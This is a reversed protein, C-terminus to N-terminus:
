DCSLQEVNFTADGGLYGLFCKSQPFDRLDNVVVVVAGGYLGFFHARRDLSEHKAEDELYNNRRVYKYSRLTSSTLKKRSFFSIFLNRAL